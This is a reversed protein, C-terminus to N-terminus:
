FKKLSEYPLNLSLIPPKKYGPTDVLKIEVLLSNKDLDFYIDLTLYFPKVCRKCNKKYGPEWKYNNFTETIFREIETPLPWNNFSHSPHIKGNIDIKFDYTFSNILTDQRQKDFALRLNLKEKLDRLFLSSDVFRPPHDKYVRARVGGPPCKCNSEEQAMLFQVCFLSFILVAIHKKM